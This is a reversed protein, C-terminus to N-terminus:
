EYASGRAAIKLIELVNGKDDMIVRWDGVRLRLFSSGSLGKVNNALAAPDAAFQDIKAMVRRADNAPM